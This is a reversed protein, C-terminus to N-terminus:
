IEPALDTAIQVDQMVTVESYGTKIAVDKIFSISKGLVINPMTNSEKTVRGDPTRPYNKLHAYQKNEPYLEEYIEKCRKLHIGHNIYHLNHRFLNSKDM